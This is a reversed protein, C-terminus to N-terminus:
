GQPLRMALELQAKLVPLAQTAYARPAPNTGRQEESAFLHLADRRDRVAAKAYGHDFADGLLGKLTAYSEQQVTSPSGALALQQSRAMAQLKIAAASQEDIMRQGFAQVASNTGQAVALEGLDMAAMSSASAARLFQRDTPSRMLSAPAVTRTPNPGPPASQAAALRCGLAAFICVNLVLRTKM